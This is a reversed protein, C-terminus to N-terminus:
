IKITKAKQTNSPNDSKVQISEQLIFKEKLLHLKAIFADQPVREWPNPYLIEREYDVMDQSSHYRAIIKEALFENNTLFARCMPTRFAPSVTYHQAGVSPNHAEESSQYHPSISLSDTHALAGNDLLFDILKEYERSLSACHSLPTFGDSLPANVDLGKTITTNLLKLLQNEEHTDLINANWIYHFFITEFISKKSLSEVLPFVAKPTAECIAKAMDWRKNLLFYRLGNVGQNDTNEAQCGVRMLFYIAEPTTASKFVSSRNKIKSNNPINEQM